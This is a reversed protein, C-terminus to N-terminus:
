FGYRDLFGNCRLEIFYSRARDWNPPWDELSKRFSKEMTKELEALMENQLQEGMSGREERLWVRAETVFDRCAVAAEVDKKLYTAELCLIAGEPTAFDPTVQPLKELEAIKKERDRRTAIQRYAYTM